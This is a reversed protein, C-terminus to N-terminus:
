TDTKSSADKQDKMRRYLRIAITKLILEFEKDPIVEYEIEVRQTPDWKPKRKVQFQTPKQMKGKNM